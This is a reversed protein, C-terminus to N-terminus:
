KGIEKIIDYFEKLSKNRIDNYKTTIDNLLTQYDSYNTTVSNENMANAIAILKRKLNSNQVNNMEDVVNYLFIIKKWEKTQEIIEQETKSRRDKSDIHKVENYFANLRANFEDNDIFYFFYALKKETLSFKDSNMIDSLTKSSYTSNSRLEHVRQGNKLRNFYDFAHTLEHHFETQIDRFMYTKSTGVKSTIVINNVKDGSMVMTPNVESNNFEDPIQNYNKDDTVYLDLKYTITNFFSNKPGRINYIFLQYRNFNGNPTPKIAKMRQTIAQQTAAWIDDYGPIVIRKENVVRKM